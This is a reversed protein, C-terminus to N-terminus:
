EKGEKKSKGTTNATKKSTKSEAVDNKKNEAKAKTEERASSAKNAKTEM